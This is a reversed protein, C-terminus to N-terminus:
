ADGPLVPISSKVEFTEDLRSQRARSGPLVVVSPSLFFAVRLTGTDVQHHAWPLSARREWVSFGSLVTELALLVKGTVGVGLALPRPTLDRRRAQRLQGPGGPGLAPRRGASVATVGVPAGFIAPSSTNTAQRSVCGRLRRSPHQPTPLSGPPGRPWCPSRLLIDGLSRPASSM